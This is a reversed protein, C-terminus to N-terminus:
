ITRSEPFACHISKRFTSENYGEGSKRSMRPELIGIRIKLPVVQSLPTSLPVHGVM